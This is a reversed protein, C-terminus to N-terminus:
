VTFVFGTGMFRTQVGTLMAVLAPNGLFTPLLTNSRPWSFQGFMEPSTKWGTLKQVRRGNELSFRLNVNCDRPECNKSRRRQKQSNNRLSSREASVLSYFCACRDTQWLFRVMEQWPLSNWMLLNCCGTSSRSHYEGASIFTWAPEEQM